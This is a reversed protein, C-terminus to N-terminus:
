AAALATPVSLILRRYASSDLSRSGRIPGGARLPQPQSPADTRTGLASDDATAPSRREAGRHLVRSPLPATNLRVLEECSAASLADYDRQTYVTFSGLLEPGGVTEPYLEFSRAPRSLPKPFLYVHRATFLFNHPQNDEQMARVVEGVEALQEVEFVYCWGAFDEPQLCRAGLVHPGPVLTHRTVPPMEDILHCHFHNVSASACWSNFYACFGNLGALLETIAQLHGLRMQQPVLEKAVLLSHGPFLPFKNTLIDYQGGASFALELLREKPNKIKGFHFGNPDFPTCVNLQADPKKPKTNRRADLRKRVTGSLQEVIEHEDCADYMVLRQEPPLLSSENVLDRFTERLFASNAHVPRLAWHKDEDITSPGAASGPSM